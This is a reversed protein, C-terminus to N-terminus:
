KENPGKIVRSIVEDINWGELASGCDVYDASKKLEKIYIDGFEHFIKSKNERFDKSDKYFLDAKNIFVVVKGINKFHKSQKITNVWKVASNIGIIREDRNASYAVVVIAVTNSYKKNILEDLMWGPKSGPNDIVYPTIERGKIKIPDGKKVDRDPTPIIRDKLQDKHMLPHLVKMFFTTKGSDTDGLFVINLKDKMLQKYIFFVITGIGIGSVIIWKIVTVTRIKDIVRYIRSIFDFWVFEVKKGIIEIQGEQKDASWVGNGKKKAYDQAKVEEETAFREDKIVGIGNKLLYIRLKETDVFDDRDIREPNTEQYKVIINSLDIESDYIYQKYYAHGIVNEEEDTEIWFYYEGLAPYGYTILNILSQFKVIVFVEIVFFIAWFLCTAIKKKM